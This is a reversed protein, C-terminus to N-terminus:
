VTDYVVELSPKPQYTKGCMDELTAPQLVV